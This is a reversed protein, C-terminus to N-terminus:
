DWYSNFQTEMQKRKSLLKIWVNISLINLKDIKHVDNCRLGNSFDFGEINLENSCQRYNKVRSPHSNEWPHNSGVISWFFCRKANNEITLIANSRLPTKVYSSGNLESTKSFRVEKANIKDFIWGSDKTEQIQVQHELQFKVDIDHIVSEALNQNFNM